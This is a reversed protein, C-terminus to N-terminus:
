RKDRRAEERDMLLKGLLMGGALALIVALTRYIFDM